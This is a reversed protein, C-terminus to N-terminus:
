IPCVVAWCSSEPDLVNIISALARALRHEYRNLTAAALSDGSEAAAAIAIAERNEGTHFHHDRALAPGVALKSAAM